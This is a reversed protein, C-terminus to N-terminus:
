FHFYANGIGSVIITRECIFCLLLLHSISLIWAAAVIEECGDWFIKLQIFAMRRIRKNFFRNTFRSSLCSSGCNMTQTKTRAM